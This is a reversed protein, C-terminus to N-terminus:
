SRRGGTWCRWRRSVQHGGHQHVRGVGAPHPAEKFRYIEAYSPLDANAIVLGMVTVALLGSEHLVLDAGAFVVIVTVFLVPVKMYEPVLNHRFRARRWLGHGGGSADRFRHRAAIALAQAEGLEAPPDAGGAARFGGGYRASPM